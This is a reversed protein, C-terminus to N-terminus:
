ELYGLDRLRQVVRRDEINVQSREWNQPRRQLATEMFLELGVSLRHRSGSQELAMLDHQETPDASLQYLHEAGGEVQILKELEQNYAGRNIARSNFRELMQPYEKEMIHIVNSPPYAESFVVPLARNPVFDALSLKEIPITPYASQLSALDLVTHFLQTTSVPQRVRQGVSQGLKRIILPVRVLEEHVGFSHSMLNHEGLMEGHDAVIIVATNERHYPQNLTELLRALLHDQYATEADYMEHLVQAEMPAFPEELPLLWRLALTNYVRMFDRAQRESFWTPACRSGFPEPVEFPLHTEMLNLFLLHPQQAPMMKETLYQHTDAISQRTNGKFNAYRTWLPVFAPILTFRLITESRAIANQVPYSIRRLLQTYREWVQSLLRVPQRLDRAPTSPVAGGYNYFTNFGRKLHNDIVGVLPNNCFGITEYGNQKLYQAFTPFHPDLMDGSQLTLHTTPYEGTFMSAHSPVTWQAPAIAHEFVTSQEAFADLNPTLHRSNGYVGLRDYRHTDLVIFVINPLKMCPQITGYSLVASRFDPTYYPLKKDM